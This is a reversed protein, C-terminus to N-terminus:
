KGSQYAEKYIRAILSVVLSLDFQQIKTLNYDCAKQRLTPDDLYFAIARSLSKVDGFPVLKGGDGTVLDRLGRISFGLVAKGCSMAEMVALPLGERKSPFVFLDSSRYWSKTDYQFGVFFVHDSIHNRCCYRILEKKKKGEGIIALFLHSNRLKLLCDIVAKQNKNKNIEGVTVILSDTEKIGLERKKDIYSPSIIPSFKASDVGVGPLYLTKKAHFHKIALAYDECNITILIDTWWSLFKEIPYYILWRFMSAGHYFHFGHAQYIVIAKKVHHAALRTLVGVIPTNCHIIDFNGKKILSRLAFFAMINKPSLPHRSFGIDRHFIHYYSCDQFFLVPDANCENSALTFEANISNAALISSLMFSNIRKGSLGTVYLIKM